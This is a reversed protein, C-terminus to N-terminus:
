RRNATTSHVDGCSLLPSPLAEIPSPEDDLLLPRLEVSQLGASSADNQIAFDDSNSTSSCSSSPPSPTECTTDKSKSPMQKAPTKDGRTTATVPTTMDDEDLTDDEYAQPVLISLGSPKRNRFRMAKRPNPSDSPPHPTEPDSIQGETGVSQRSFKRAKYRNKKMGVRPSDDSSGLVKRGQAKTGENEAEYGRGEEAEAQLELLDHGIRTANTKSVRRMEKQTPYDEDDQPEEFAYKLMTTEEVSESVPSSPPTDCETETTASSSSSFTMSPCDMEQASLSTSRCRIGLASFEEYLGEGEEMERSLRSSRAAGAM